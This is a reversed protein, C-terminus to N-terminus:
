PCGEPPRNKNKNLAAIDVPSHDEEEKFRWPALCGSTNNNNLYFDVAKGVACM